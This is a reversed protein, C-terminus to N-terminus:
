NKEELENLLKLLLKKIEIQHLKIEELMEIESIKEELKKKNM